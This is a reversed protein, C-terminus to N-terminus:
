IIDQLKKVSENKQEVCGQLSGDQFFLGLILTLTTNVSDLRILVFLYGKNSPAIEIYPM